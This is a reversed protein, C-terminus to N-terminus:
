ALSDQKLRWRRIRRKLDGETQQFRNLKTDRRMATYDDGHVAVLKALWEEERYSQQRPRKKAELKAQEELEKIIYNDVSINLPEHSEKETIPNLPDNLPNDLESEEHVVRTEGTRPDREIQALPFETITAANRSISLPDTPKSTGDSTGTQPRVVKEIGGTRGQLRAVLGFHRYNQAM